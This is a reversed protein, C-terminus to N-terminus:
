PFFTITGKHQQLNMGYKLEGLVKSFKLEPGNSSSKVWFSLNKLFFINLTLKIDKQQHLKVYFM